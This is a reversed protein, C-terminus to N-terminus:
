QAPKLTGADGVYEGTASEPTGTYEGSRVPEPVDTTAPEPVDTTAPEPVDTTAPEPVHSLAVANLSAVHDEMENTCGSLAEHAEERCDPNSLEDRIASLAAKLREKAEALLQTGITM